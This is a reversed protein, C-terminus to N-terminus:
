AHSAPQLSERTRIYTQWGDSNSVPVQSAEQLCVKSDINQNSQPRHCPHKDRIQSRMVGSFACVVRSWCSCPSCRVARLCAGWLQHYTYVACSMPSKGQVQWSHMIVVFIVVM